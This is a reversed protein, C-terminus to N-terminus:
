CDCDPRTRLKAAACQRTTRECRSMADRDDTDDAIDCVTESEECALRTGECRQACNRSRDTAHDVGEDVRAEARQIQRFDDHDAISPGCGCLLACVALVLRM